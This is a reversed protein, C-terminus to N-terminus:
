AHRAAEGCDAFYAKTNAHVRDDSLLAAMEFWRYDSHQEPPLALGTELRLEYGLVVYHTGFEPREGANSDYFHEYVGLFRADARRLACGLEVGTLRGFAADLTENKRVRGGPVFWFDRAPPNRRLGLLVRAAADRVILDISILPADRVVNLFAERSLM